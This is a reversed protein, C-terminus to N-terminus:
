PISWGKHFKRKGNVVLCMKPASLNNDRCFKAMNYVSIVNGLPDKVKYNKAVAKISNEICLDSVSKGKCRESTIQKSRESCPIGKHSESLRKNAESTNKRGTNANSIKEKFKNSTNSTKGGGARHNYGNPYITNYIKSCECEYRNAEEKYECIVLLSIKFNEKGYALIDKSIEMTKASCRWCHEQFRIEVSDKTQGIYKKNNIINEILYINYM